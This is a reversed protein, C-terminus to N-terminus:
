SMQKAMHVKIKDSIELGLYICMNHFGTSEGPM